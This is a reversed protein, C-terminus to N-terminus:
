GSTVTEVPVEHCCSLFSSITASGSPTVGKISLSEIRLWNWGDEMRVAETGLRSKFPTSDDGGGDELSIM